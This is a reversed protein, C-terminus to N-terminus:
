SNIETMRVRVAAAEERLRLLASVDEAALGYEQAELLTDMTAQGVATSVGLRTALEIALRQDKSALRVMFGPTFDGVFAKKPLAVMLQNNSAMTTQMVRLMLDLSLGAKVGLVVAEVSAALVSAALFNNTLKMAEGMGLGGCHFFDQGMCSLVPRCAEVAAPDGGIMLTLTGAVAHDATKGVPADVMQVGREALAAGVRQTTAPDITSMDVLLLGPRASRIVGNPGLVVQEVDPGDPLMTIVIDCSAAVARPSDAGRAGANVLDRIATPDVDYVTLPYGGQLVNKAMPRGMTGLGIFGIEQM